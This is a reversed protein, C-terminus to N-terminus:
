NFLLHGCTPWQTKWNSRAYLLQARYTQESASADSPLGSGGVAHWTSVRFQYMGYFPGHVANPRGGSECGALAAWNLGDAKKPYSVPVPKPKPKTGVLVVQPVPQVTIQKSVLTKATQKGDAFSLQYTSVLTGNKGAQGVQKTGVFLTPDSKTVTTFPIPTSELTQNSTIRVVIVALGDSPRTDLPISVHDAPNVVIGAETLADGVTAATTVLVRADRGVEVTMTHQLDVDIDLGTLPVRASRDASVVAGTTRLGAQSLAQAVSSATVWVEHTSGDVTLKIQRGREISITEGDHVSASTAPSLADHAGVAIGARHLVDGVSHGYSHLSTIKGDVSVHVTKDLGVYATTGVVLAALVVIYVATVALRKRM